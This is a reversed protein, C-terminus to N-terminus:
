PILACRMSAFPMLLDTYMYVWHTRAHQPSMHYKQVSTAASMQSAALRCATDCRYQTHPGRM